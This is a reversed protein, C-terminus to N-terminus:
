RLKGHLIQEFCVALLMVGCDHHGRVIKSVGEVDASSYSQKFMAADNLIVVAVISQQSRFYLSIEFAIDTNLPMTQM